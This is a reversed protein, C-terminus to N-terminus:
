SAHLDIMDLDPSDIGKVAPIKEEMLSKLSQEGMSHDSEPTNGPDQYNIFRKREFYNKKRAGQGPSNKVNQQLISVLRLLQKRTVQKPNFYYAETVYLYSVFDEASKSILLDKDIEINHFYQENQKQEFHYVITIKPPSYKLLLKTPVSPILSGSLSLAALDVFKTQM